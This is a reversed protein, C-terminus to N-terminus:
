KSVSCGCSGSIHTKTVKTKVNKTGCEPCSKSIFECDGEDTKKDNDGFGLTGMEEETSRITEGCGSYVRGQIRARRGFFEMEVAVSMFGHSGGRVVREYNSSGSQKEFRAELTAALNLKATDDRSSLLFAGILDTQKCAFDYTNRYDVPNRGAYWEGGFKKTLTNDYSTTLRDPLKSHFAEDVNVRIRQGLLEGRTPHIGFINYISELGDRDSRDLSQSIMSIVGDSGRSVVRLMAQQRTTNYGGVDDKSNKLEEPFDSIVIMTNPSDPNKVMELMDNYEDMEIRRRRLEFELEPLYEAKLEASKVADRFITGIPRGDRSSVLDEGNYVYEFPTRMNGDLVEALWTTTDDFVAIEPDVTKPYYENTEPLAVSM